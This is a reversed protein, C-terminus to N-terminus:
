PGTRESAPTAADRALDADGYPTIVLGLPNFERVLDRRFQLVAMGFPVSRLIADALDVGLRCALKEFITTETGVVAAARANALANVFSAITGLDAAASECAALIVIPHPETWKRNQEDRIRQTIMPAQLWRKGPLTIRAGKPQEPLDRTEYHGLIVLIAPRDADSWLGALLDEAPEIPKVLTAGLRAALEAGLTASPGGELGVAVRVAGARVPHVRRVPTEQQRPTHLLQEVQHRMGWFGYVCFAERKDPYLCDNLCRQCSYPEGQGDVRAFGHCVRTEPQGEIAQPVAFDYLTAWPFIYNQNFRTIQIIGDNSTTLELLARQATDSLNSWLMDYLSAGARALGPVTADFETERQAATLTDGFRPGQGAANWTADELRARVAALAEQMVRETIDASGVTRGRKLQISHTDGNENFGLTLARTTFEAMDVFRETRSFELEVRIAPGADGSVWVEDQEVDAHLLYSQIMHNHYEDDTATEADIGPALDYYVAIRLRAQGPTEPATLDFYAATSAGYPPLEIAQMAPSELEFGHPFVAVHLTHGREDAAPPLLPDIPPPEGIVVSHLSRRGISVRLQYHAGTRLTEHPRVFFGTEHTPQRRLLVADLRRDQIEGLLDLASESAALDALAGRLSEQDSRADFLRARAAAAPLLGLSEQMFSPELSAAGLVADRFPVALKAAGRLTRTLQSSIRPRATAQPTISQGARQLFSDIDGPDLDALEAGEEVLAAMAHMMRLDNLSRPHSFLLPQSVAGPLVTRNAAKVAGHVPYDHVIGMLLQLVYDAQAMSAPLWVVSTGRPHPLSAAALLADERWMGDFVAIVRPRTNSTARRAARLVAPAIDGDCIVVDHGPARLVAPAAGSSAVTALVLGHQQVHADQYWTSSRVTDLAADSEPGAALLRLPLEFSPRHPVRGGALRALQIRDTDLSATRLLQEVTDEWSFVAFAPPVDIFVALPVYGTQHPGSEHPLANALESLVALMDDPLYAMPAVALASGWPPLTAGISTWGPALPWDAVGRNPVSRGRGRNDEYGIWVGDPRIDLHLVVWPVTLDLDMRMLLTGARERAQETFSAAIFFHFASLHARVQSSILVKLGPLWPAPAVGGTRRRGRGCAASRASRLGPLGRLCPDTSHLTHAM